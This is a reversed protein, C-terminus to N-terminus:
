NGKSLIPKLRDALLQTFLREGHANFHDGIGFTDESFREDHSLDIFTIGPQKLYEGLNQIYTQLAKSEPVGRAQALRRVRVFVLQIDTGQMLNITPPLFSDGVQNEFNYVHAPYNTEAALSSTGLLDRDSENNRLTRYSIKDLLEPTIGFARYVTSYKLRDDIEARIERNYKYPPYFRMAQRTLPSLHNFYALQNFLTEDAGALSEVLEENAAGHVGIDPQTLHTDRFVIVITAPHHAAPLIVNKILLYWTPTFSGVFEICISKQGLQESLLNADVGSQVISNGIVVVQPQEQEIRQQYQPDVTPDRELIYQQYRGPLVMAALLNILIFTILFIWFKRM